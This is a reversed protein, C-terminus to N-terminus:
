LIQHKGMCLSLLQVQMGSLHKLSPRRTVHSGKFPSQYNRFSDANQVFWTFWHNLSLSVNVSNRFSDMQVFRSLFVNGGGAPLKLKKKLTPRDNRKNFFLYIFVNFPYNVLFLHIFLNQWWKSVRMNNWVQIVWKRKCLMFSPIKFLRSNTVLSNQDSTVKMAHVFFVSIM